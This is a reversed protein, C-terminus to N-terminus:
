WTKWLKEMFKKIFSLHITLTLNKITKIENKQQKAHKHMIHSTKNPEWGGVRLAGGAWPTHHGAGDLQTHLIQIPM